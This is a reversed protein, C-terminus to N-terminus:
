PRNCYRYDGYLGLGESVDPNGPASKPPTVWIHLTRYAGLGGKPQEPSSIPAIAFKENKLANKM